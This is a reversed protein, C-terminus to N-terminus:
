AQTSHQTSKMRRGSAYRTLQFWVGPEVRMVAPVTRDTSMSALMRIPSRRPPVAVGLVVAIWVNQM